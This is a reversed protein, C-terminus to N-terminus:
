LSERKSDQNFSLQDITFSPDNVSGFLNFYGTPYENNISNKIRNGVWKSISIHEQDAAKEIKKLTDNDIYLSIQPM